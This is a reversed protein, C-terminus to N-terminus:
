EVSTRRGLPNRWGPCLGAYGHAGPQFRHHSIGAALGPHFEPDPLDAIADRVTRRPQLATTGHTPAPCLWEIGLDSRFGVLFVRESRQPVGYDAANLLCPTVRYHLDAQSQPYRELRALHESWSEPERRTLEPITLQQTVYRFYDAFSPRTLGKVNEFLFAAPRLERTARIADPFM